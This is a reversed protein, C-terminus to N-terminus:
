TRSKTRIRSSSPKKSSDVRKWTTLWQRMAQLRVLRLRSNNLWILSKRRMKLRWNSSRKRGRPLTPIKRITLRTFILYRRRRTMQTKRYSRFTVIKLNLWLMRKELRIRSTKEVSRRAGSLIIRRLSLLKLGRKLNKSQNNMSNFKKRNIKLPPTWNLRKLILVKLPKKSQLLM